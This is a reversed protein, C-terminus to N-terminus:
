CDQSKLEYYRIITTIVVMYDYRKYDPIKPLEDWNVICLHKKAKENCTDNIEKAEELTMPLYGMMLHSANWRLHECISVNILRKLWEQKTSVNSSQNEISFPWVPLEPANPMDHLGLLIEKTYCHKCNARDQALKRNIRRYGLLKIQEKNIEENIRIDHSKYVEKSAICYSEYFRHAMTDEEEDLLWKKTYIDKPNGFYEIAPYCNDAYSEITKKFKFENNSDCLRILIKFKDFRDTRHQMAYEYIMTAIHLNNEDKGTAIVVYNLNDVLMHLIEGFELSGANCPHFTIENIAELKPLAPIDQYLEGKIENIRNDFVHLEIPTKHGNCDPFASFEYLFRLTEQGTTGFGIIFATFPKESNVCGLQKNIEVFNIPQAPCNGKKDKRMAFEMIAAKSDDIIQLKGNSCAALLATEKTNKTSCYLRNITAKIESNLLNIAAHMNSVEDNSLIFFNVASSKRMIKDLKRLNMNQLIGKSIMDISDLSLSSRLLIFKIDSIQKLINSKYSLLGMIGSFSQGSTQENNEQPIDIFIIREKGKSATYIDKALLISKENLGWFVNLKSKSTSHQWITAWFWDIIRKWFCAVAFIMSIIIALAHILAFCFMYWTNSKCNEAIGILNSKSLFMEFGSLVSRLTLTIVNGDTGGYDYGIYYIAVGFSFVFWAAKPLIINVFASANTRNNKNKNFLEVAEKSLIYLSTICTLVIILFVVNILNLSPLNLNWLSTKIAEFLYSSNTAAKDTAAIIDPTLPM